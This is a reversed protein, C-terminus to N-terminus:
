LRHPFIASTWVWTGKGAEPNRLNQQAPWCGLIWYVIPFKVLALLLLHHDMSICITPPSMPPTMTLEKPLQPQLTMLKPGDKIHQPIHTRQVKDLTKPLYKFPRSIGRINATKAQKNTQKIHYWKSVLWSRTLKSVWFYNVWKFWMDLYFSKNNYSTLSL